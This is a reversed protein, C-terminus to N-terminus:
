RHDSVGQPLDFMDSAGNKPIHLQLGFEHTEKKQRPRHCRGAISYMVDGSGVGSFAHIDVANAEFAGVWDISNPAGNVMGVLKRSTEILLTGQLGGSGDPGLEAQIRFEFRLNGGRPPPLPATM